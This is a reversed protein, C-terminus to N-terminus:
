VGYKGSPATYTTINTRDVLREAVFTFSLGDAYLPFDACHATELLFVAVAFIVSVYEVLTHAGGEM